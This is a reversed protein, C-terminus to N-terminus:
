ACIKRVTELHSKVTFKRGNEGTIKGDKNIYYSYDKCGINIGADLQENQMFLTGNREPFIVWGKLDSDNSQQLVEKFNRIVTKYLPAADEGDWGQEYDQFDSLSELMETYASGRAEATSKIRTLGRLMELAKELYTRDDSLYGLQRYIEANLEITNM